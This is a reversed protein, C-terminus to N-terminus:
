LNVGKLRIIKKELLDLGRSGTIVKEWIQRNEVKDSVNDSGPTNDYIGIGSSNGDDFEWDQIKSDSSLHSSSNMIDRLFEETIPLKPIAKGDKADQEFSENVAKALLKTDEIKLSHKLSNARYLIKKDSPYMRILTKSYEEIMYGVMWGICVSRWVPTYEGIYKDIGTILGCTCIDIFDLLGLHSQPTSRYFIKARNIALPLNNEILIERAKLFRDYISQLNAPLPEGWRTVVFKILQYNPHFDMLRKANKERIAPSIHKTFNAPTERFYPKASLINGLDNRVFEAFMVYVETARAYRKLANAFYKELKVVKEVQKRQDSNDEENRVISTNISSALRQFERDVFFKKKNM